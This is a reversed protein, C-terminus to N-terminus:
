KLKFLINKEDFIKVVEAGSEIIMGYTLGFVGEWNKNWYYYGPKKSLFNYRCLDVFKISNISIDAFYAVEYRCIGSIENEAINEKIWNGAIKYVEQEKRDPMWKSDIPGFGFINVFCIFFQALFIFVIFFTKKYIVNFAFTSLLYYWFSIGVIIMFPIISVMYRMLGASGFIGLRWFLIQSLLFIVVFLSALILHSKYYINVKSKFILYLGFFFLIFILGDYILFRLPYDLWGGYGYVGAADMYGGKFIYLVEGSDLFGFFNWVFVPILSVLVIKLFKILNVKNFYKCIKLELLTWFIFLGLFLLGEIRALVALGFVLGSMLYYRKVTYFFGLVLLLAFIPETLASVSSKFLIFSFNVLFLSVLALYRNGYILLVSRYILLSIVIFIFINLIQIFLFNNLGFINALLGFPYVYMPKAWTTLGIQLNNPFDQFVAAIQLFHTYSDPEFDLGDNYLLILLKTFLTFLLVLFVINKNILNYFRFM